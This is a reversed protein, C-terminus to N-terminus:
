ACWQCNTRVTPRNRQVRDTVRRRARGSHICAVRQYQSGTRDMRIRIDEGRANAWKVALPELLAFSVVLGDWLGCLEDEEPLTYLCTEESSHARVFARVRVSVEADAVADDRSPLEDEGESQIDDDEGCPHVGIGDNDGM